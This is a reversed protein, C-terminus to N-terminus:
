GFLLSVWDIRVLFPEGCYACQANVEEIKPGFNDSFLVKILEVRDSVGLKKAWESKNPVPTSPACCRAILATNQEASTKAVKSVYRSDAGTPHRVVVTEGNRLTATRVARIDESTGQIPFGDEMDINVENKEGCSSCKHSFERTSGYTARITAIFLIDRDALVLDDVMNPRNTKDFQGISLVSRSLLASMYDGYSVNNKAELGALFEEDEGTLEKVLADTVWDGNLDQLGMLLHVTPDSPSSIQPVPDKSLEEIQSAVEQTSM